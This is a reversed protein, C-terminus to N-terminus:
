VCGPCVVGHPAYKQIECLIESNQGKRGPPSSSIAELQVLRSVLSGSSAGSGAPAPAAPEGHFVKLGASSASSSSAIFRGGAEVLTITGTLRPFRRRRRLVAPCWRPRAYGPSVVPCSGQGALAENDVSVAGRDHSRRCGGKFPLRATPRATQEASSARSMASRGVPRRGRPAPWRDM